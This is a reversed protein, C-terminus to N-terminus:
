QVECADDNCRAAPDGSRQEARGPSAASGVSQVLLSMIDAGLRLDEVAGFYRHRLIGARDILLLTPTGQMGYASMTEPLQGTEGPQDIAVPFSVRYEHMFAALADYSGQVEVHEFVTHLGLVVLSEGSFTHAIRKAQPLGHSVCGPCLMQFAEIVIVQGHLEALTIPAATNLWAAVRLEPAKYM